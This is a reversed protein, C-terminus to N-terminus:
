YLAYLAMHNDWSHSIAGISDIYVKADDVDCFINEMVESRLMILPANLAWLYDIINPNVLHHQLLAYIKQSM